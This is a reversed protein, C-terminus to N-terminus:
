TIFNTAESTVKLEITIGLTENVLNNASLTATVQCLSFAETNLTYGM